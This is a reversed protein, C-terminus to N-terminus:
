TRNFVYKLIKKDEEYSLLSFAEEYPIIAIEEIEQDPEKNYSEVIKMEFFWVTKQIAIGDKKIEYRSEAIPKTGISKVKFGTEEFVEREAAKIPSEKEELHGKPYGWFGSSYDDKYEESLKNKVLLIKNNILVIGGAAFDVESNM